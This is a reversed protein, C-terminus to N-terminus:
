SDARKESQYKAAIDELEDERFVYDTRCFECTM